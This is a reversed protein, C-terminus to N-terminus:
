YNTGSYWVTEGMDQDIDKYADGANICISYAGYQISGHIGGAPSGHLGAHVCDVLNPFSDGPIIGAVVGPLCVTKLPFRRSHFPSYVGSSWRALLHTIETQIL